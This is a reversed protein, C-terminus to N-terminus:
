EWKSLSPIMTRLHLLCILSTIQVSALLIVVLRLSELCVLDYALLYMHSEIIILAIVFCCVSLISIYCKAWFFQSMLFLHNSLILSSEGQLPLRWADSNSRDAWITLILHNMLILDSITIFSLKAGREREHIAECILKFYIVTKCLSSKPETNPLRGGWGNEELDQVYWDRNQFM